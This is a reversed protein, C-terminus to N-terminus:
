GPGGAPPPGPPQKELRELKEQLLAMRQVIQRNEDEQRSLAVSYQMLILLFFLFCVLFATTLYYLGLLHSLWLLVQPFIGFVILVASATLWLMAYTESLRRRRILEIIVGAVAIAAGLVALSQAVHFTEGGSEAVSGVGLAFPQFVTMM